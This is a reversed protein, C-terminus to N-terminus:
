SITHLRSCYYFDVFIYEWHRRGRSRIQKKLKFAYPFM